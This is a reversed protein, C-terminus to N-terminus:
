LAPKYKGPLAAAPCRHTSTQPQESHMMRCFHYLDSANGNVRDGLIMEAGWVRLTLAPRVYYEQYCVPARDHVPWFGGGGGGGGGAAVAAAIAFGGILRAEDQHCCVGAGHQMWM